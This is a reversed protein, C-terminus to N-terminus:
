YLRDCLLLGTIPHLLETSFLLHWCGTGKRQTNCAPLCSSGMTLRLLKFPWSIRSLSYYLSFAFSSSTIEQLVSGNAMHLSSNLRSTKPSSWQSCCTASSFYCLLKTIFGPSSGISVDYHIFGKIQYLIHHYQIELRTKEPGFPCQM